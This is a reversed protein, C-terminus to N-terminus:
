GHTLCLSPKRAQSFGERTKQQTVPPIEFYKDLVAICAMLGNFMQEDQSQGTQNTEFEWELDMIVQRPVPLWKFLEEAQHSEEKAVSQIYEENSRAAIYPKSVGFMHVLNLHERRSTWFAGTWKEVREEQLFMPGISGHIEVYRKMLLNGVGCMCPSGAQLTDNMYAERLTDVFWNYISIDKTYNM